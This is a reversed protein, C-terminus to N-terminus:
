LPISVKPLNRIQKTSSVKPLNRIQKFVEPDTYCLKTRPDVYPAQMLIKLHFLLSTFSVGYCCLWFAKYHFDIILLPM